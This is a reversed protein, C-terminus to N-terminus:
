KQEHSEQKIGEDTYKISMVQVKSFGQEKKAEVREDILEQVNEASKVIYVNVGSESWPIVNSYHPTSRDFVIINAIGNGGSKLQGDPGIIDGEFVVAVGDYRDLLDNKVSIATTGPQGASGKLKIFVFDKGEELPPRQPNEAGIVAVDVRYDSSQGKKMDQIAKDIIKKVEEPSNNTHQLSAEFPAEIIEGGKFKATVLGTKEAGKGEDYMRKGNVKIDGSAVDGAQATYKIGSKLTITSQPASGSEATTSPQPKDIGYELVDVRKGKNANKVQNILAQKDAESQNYFIDAGHPAKILTGRVKSTVILVTNPDDDYWREGNLDIDGVVTWSALSGTNLTGNRLLHADSTLDSERSTPASIPQPNGKGFEIVDVKYNAPKGKKMEEVDENLFREIPDTPATHRINAVFKTEVKQGAKLLVILGTDTRDDYLRQDNVEVDGIAYDGDKAVYTQGNTLRTGPKREPIPTRTPAEIRATPTPIATASLRPALTPTPGRTPTRSPTPTNLITSLGSEDKDCAILTLATAAVGALAMTIRSSKKNIFIKIGREINM